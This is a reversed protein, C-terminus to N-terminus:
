INPFMSLDVLPLMFAPISFLSKEHNRNLDTCCIGEEGVQSFLKSMGYNRPQLHLETCLIKDLVGLVGPQIALQPHPSPLLEFLQHTCYMPLITTSWSTLRHVTDTPNPYRWFYTQTCHPPPYPYKLIPTYWFPLVNKASTLVLGSFLCIFLVNFIIEMHTGLALVLEM